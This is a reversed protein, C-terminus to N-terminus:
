YRRRGFFVAKHRGRPHDAALLYQMLRRDEVIANHRNPLFM